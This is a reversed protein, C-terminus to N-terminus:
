RPPDTDPRKRIQRPDPEREVRDVRKHLGDIRQTLTVYDRTFGEKDVFAKTQALQEELFRKDVAALEARIKQGEVEAADARKTLNALTSKMFFGVIGVLFTAGTGFVAIAWMPVEM